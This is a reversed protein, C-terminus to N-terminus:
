EVKKRLLALEELALRDEEDETDEVLDVDLYEDNSAELNKALGPSVEPKTQNIKVETDGNPSGEGETSDIEGRQCGTWYQKHKDYGAKLQLTCSEWHDLTCHGPGTRIGAHCPDSQPAHCHHCVRTMTRSLDSLSRSKQSLRTVKESLM